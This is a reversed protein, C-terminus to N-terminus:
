KDFIFDVIREIGKNTATDIDDKTWIDSPYSTLVVAIAYKSDKYGSKNNISTQKKTKFWENGISKNIKEELLIKNGLKNVIMFFEEKDSIRADERITSINNGSAPMIHEINVNDDFDFKLGKSQAYLFENIYVLLNKDYGSIAETIDQENWNKRIHDNFNIKITEISVAKDVLKINESFLFTKFKSSSYGVDVLELLTFLRLLCQCIDSVNSESVDQTEFRYLYSSLYLKANENCKLLLKVIPYDKIKDWIITIKYLNECLKIPDNLLEKRIDTYYRRLGPTTVDVSSDKIYEKNVARNIYMFQQLVADINVIRRTNLENALKNINEWQENFDQKDTGSKSYLQASIIDADSLPMGTSNLSNFMTIAQEIQWSRIEIVQCKELFVKAFQNLQSDSKEGLKNYFYKFNRFHKTYKNDKQKRPIKHVSQESTKFDVAEIIKKVEDLYLENISKNDLILINQTKSNDKLMSPIEEDEAKYLIAMIKNRNSKLGFKLSESDEDNPINKIVDNLKILLAKLLLLFTTTRQQGDILSFKNSESCDVIITGFFYPDSADSSIFADIDQWLKDCQNIDWSYGRQYEPIVFNESKDLKLYGSILKLTPEINKAM